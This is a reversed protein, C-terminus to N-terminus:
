RRGMRLEHLRLFCLSFFLTKRLAGRLLGSEFTAIIM